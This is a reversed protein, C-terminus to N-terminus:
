KTLIEVGNELVAVTHEFHVSMSGDRTEFSGDRLAIVDPSGESVMPEIALVLGPKIEMGKGKEGFNYVTPDEHLKFGVGHGTLGHVVSFGAHRVTSEIAYGIDGLRNGPICNKIGEDLANKTIEMMKEARKPIKGIAVTIASDTIYGNLDVGLDIKLIDGDKLKYSNPIGHVIKENVSACIAAPFPSEGAQSYGLFAPRAGKEKIFIRALEDLRSLKVGERSAERLFRLTEALIKGSRRLEEIDHEDKLAVPM